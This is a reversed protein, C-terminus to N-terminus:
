VTIGAERAKELILQRKLYYKKHALRQVERQRLASKVEDLTAVNQLENWDTVADIQEIYSQNKKNSM